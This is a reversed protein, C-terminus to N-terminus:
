RKWIHIRVVKFDHLTFAINNDETYRLICDRSYTRSVQNFTVTISNQGVSPGSATYTEIEDPYGYRYLVRKLTDGLKVYRHPRWLATRAWDCKYGAVAICTIYGGSDLVFGMVVPGRQYIWEVEGPRLTVWVPLAWIPFPAAAGAVAAMGGPAGMAAPGAAAGMPGMGPGMETPGMGGMEMGGMGPGAAGPMMGEAGAPTMPGMGPGMPGMGPGMPGMPGMGPGMPGMPGMMGPGAGPGTMLPAGAAAGPAQAATPAQEPGEGVVIGDPQGWVDLLNIAHQNLRIGALQVEAAVASGAALVIVCVGVLARMYTRM